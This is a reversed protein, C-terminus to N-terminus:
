GPSCRTREPERAPEPKAEGDHRLLRPVDLEEPAAPLAAACPAVAAAALM